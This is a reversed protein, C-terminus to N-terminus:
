IANLTAAPGRPTGSRSRVATSHIAYTLLVCVFTHALTLKRYFYFAPARSVGRRAIALKKVNKKYLLDNKLRLDTAGNM